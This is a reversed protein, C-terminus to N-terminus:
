GTGSITVHSHKRTYSAVQRFQYQRHIETRVASGTLCNRVDTRHAINGVFRGKNRYIRDIYVSTIFKRLNTHVQRVISESVIINSDRGTKSLSQFHCTVQQNVINRELRVGTDLSPIYLSRIDLSVQDSDLPVTLGVVVLPDDLYHM